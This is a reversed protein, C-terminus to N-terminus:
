EDKRRVQWYDTILAMFIAEPRKPEEWPLRDTTIEFSKWWSDPNEKVEKAIDFLIESLEESNM